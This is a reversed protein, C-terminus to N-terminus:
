TREKKRTGRTQRNLRWLLVSIGYTVAIILPLVIVASNAGLLFFGYWDYGPAIVGNEMHGLAEATYYVSYIVLPIIGIVTYRFKIKDTREFALFVVISLIPNLLHLFFNSNSFLMWVGYVPGMTPALFFITVLMTLTVGVTGTLAAVYCFVPLDEIKGTLVRWEEIAVILAAIGMLINSDVTFYRLAGLKSDSLLGNGPGSMMWVLAVIVFVVIAINMAFAIKQKKMTRGKM